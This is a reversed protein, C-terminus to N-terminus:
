KGNTQQYPDWFPQTKVSDDHVHDNDENDDDDYDDYDNNYEIMIMRM